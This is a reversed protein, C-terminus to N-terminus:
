YGKSRLQLLVDQRREYSLTLFEDLASFNFFADTGSTMPTPESKVCIHICRLTM